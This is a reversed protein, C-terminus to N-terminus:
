LSNQYDIEVQRHTCQNIQLKHLKKFQIDFNIRFKQPKAKSQETIPESFERWKRSWDSEFIFSIVGQDRWNQQAEPLKSTNM